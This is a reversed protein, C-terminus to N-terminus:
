CSAWGSRPCPSASTPSCPRRRQRVALLPPDGRLRRARDRDVLWVVLASAPSSSRRCPPARSGRREVQEGSDISYGFDGHLVGNTAGSIATPCSTRGARDPRHVRGADAALRPGHGRDRPQLLGDLPLVPDPDAPRPGLGEQVQGEAGRDDQPNNAFKATPGGPAALLIGYVVITIGFLVPIAQLVRRIVFKTM